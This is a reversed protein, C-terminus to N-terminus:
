HKAVYVEAVYENPHETNYVRIRTRRFIATGANGGYIRIQRPFDKGAGLEQVMGQMKGYGTLLLLKTM